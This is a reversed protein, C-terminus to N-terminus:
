IKKRVVRKVRTQLTAPSTDKEIEKDDKDEPSKAEAKEEPKENTPEEVKVTPPVEETDVAEVKVDVDMEPNETDSTGSMPSPPIRVADPDDDEQDHATNNTSTGDEDEEEETELVALHYLKMEEDSIPVPANSLPDRGNLSKPFAIVDRISRARCLIAMLRDIGLAIGGHPPCGSELANLLHSLHDHPIKLVQELIFQQMDRDHIRMSGGGVEQGNLVLDYAESRITELNECSTAFKDLDDVLPATFPHHVSELQKTM